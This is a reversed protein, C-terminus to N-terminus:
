KELNTFYVVSADLIQGYDYEDGVIMGEFEYVMLPEVLTLYGYYSSWIAVDEAGTLAHLDLAVRRAQILTGRMKVEHRISRIHYVTDKAHASKVTRTQAARYGTLWVICEAITGTFMINSESNGNLGNHINYRGDGNSLSLEQCQEALHKLDNVTGRKSM